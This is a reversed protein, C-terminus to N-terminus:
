PGVQEFLHFVLEGNSVQFTGVYAMGEPEFDWGTGVVHFTRRAAEAKPDVLAWVMPKGHQVQVSLICAGRPMSVTNIQADRLEYKWIQRNSM